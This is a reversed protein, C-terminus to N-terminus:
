ILALFLILLGLVSALPYFYSVIFGFGLFSIVFPLIISVLFNMMEGLNLGRLSSSLTFTLSFLSTICGLFVIVSMVGKQWGSCLYLLPMEQYLLSANQLLITITMLLLFGLVLASLFAVQAKSKKSLKEGLSSVLLLSNSLNISVYLLSFWLPPFSFKPSIFNLPFDIKFIFILIFSLIMVPVFLYSLKELASKGHRFVLFCLILVITLIIFSWIKGLPFIVNITGGFMASSLIINLILNFILFIKSKKLKKLIKESNKLLFYIILYFLFIAFIAGVYAISGFRAFYVVIEKGTIFGCGVVAGVIALVIALM